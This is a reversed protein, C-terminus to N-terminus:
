TTSCAAGGPGGRHGAPKQVVGILFEGITHAIDLLSAVEAPSFDYAVPKAVGLVGCVGDTGLMPVAIAGQVQTERASPRAVGSADTQLNCVQVPARREAALGAMGKGVPILQLRDLMDEPIGRQARTRLMGSAPELSHITGVTCGFDALVKDLVALLNAETAANNGLLAEIEAVLRHRVTSELM